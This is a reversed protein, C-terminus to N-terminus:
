AWFLKTIFGSIDVVGSLKGNNTVIIQRTNNMLFIKALQIAPVTEDVSIFQEKMFDAIKTEKDTKLTEAFPQFHLIPTLDDM